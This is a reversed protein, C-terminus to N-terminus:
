VVSKRDVKLEEKPPTIVHIAKEFADTHEDAKLAKAVALFRASQEANDPLKPKETKSM